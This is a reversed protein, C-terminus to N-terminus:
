KLELMYKEYDSPNKLSFELNVVGAYGQDKLTQILAVYDVVGEGLPLHEDWVGHNDHLHIHVVNDGLLEIFETARYGCTLAHGADVTAGVNSRNVKKLLEAMEEPSRYLEHPYVLNEVGLLIDPAYDALDKLMRVLYAEQQKVLEWDGRAPRYVQKSWEGTPMAIIGPASHVVVVPAGLSRALDLSAKIEGKAVERILRNTSGLHLDIMPAHVTFGVKLEDKIKYVLGLYEEQEEETLYSARQVVEFGDIGAEVAKKAYDWYHGPRFSTYYRM